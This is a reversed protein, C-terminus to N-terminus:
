RSPPPPLWPCLTRQALDLLRLLLAAVIGIAVIGAFMLPYNIMVWSNMIFYGLGYRTAYNEAFFLVAISIGVSIRLASVLRPLSAPLYLAVFLRRPSLQLTRAVYHYEIPIERVGDRVALIIQFLLVAFLLLVKSLNGLGFLVMFLPLFAIKPLPFLLYVVPTFMRDFRAYVGSLIGVPVGLAVALAIAVCIRALSAAAHRLLEGSLTREVVVGAVVHPWPVIAPGLWWSLIYWLAFLVGVGYVRERWGKVM